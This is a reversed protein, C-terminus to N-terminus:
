RSAGSACGKQVPIFRFVPMAIGEPILIQYVPQSAFRQFNRGQNIKM